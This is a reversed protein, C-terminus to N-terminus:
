DAPQTATYTLEAHVIDSEITVSIGTLAYEDFSTGRAAQEKAIADNLASTMVLAGPALAQWLLERLMEETVTIRLEITDMPNGPTLVSEGSRNLANPM